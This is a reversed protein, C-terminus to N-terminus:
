CPAPPSTRRSSRWRTSRADHRRRDRGRDRHQDDRRDPRVHDLDAARDARAEDVNVVLALSSCSWRSRRLPDAHEAAHPARPHDGRVRLQVLRLDDPARQSSMACRAGARAREMEDGHDYGLLHLLGHTLPAAGSTASSRRASSSTASRARCGEPLEDRGDIPFSLVDTAEDIGLHERKLTACRTRGSSRSASSARRRHGRRAARAPSSSRRM